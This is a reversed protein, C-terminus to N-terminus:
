TSRARQDGDGADVRSGTVRRLEEVLQRGGGVGRKGAHVVIPEGVAHVTIRIEFLRGRVDVGRIEGLPV